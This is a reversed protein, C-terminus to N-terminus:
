TKRRAIWDANRRLFNSLATLWMWMLNNQALSRNKKYREVTVKYIPPPGHWNDRDKAIILTDLYTKCRDRVGNDRLIFVKKDMHM